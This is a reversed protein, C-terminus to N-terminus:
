LAIHRWAFYQRQTSLTLNLRDIQSEGVEAARHPMEGDGHTLQGFFAEFVAEGEIARGHGAPLGNVFTVHKTSGNM